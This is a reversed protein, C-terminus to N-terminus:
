CGVVGGQGGFGGRLRLFMGKAGAVGLVRQPVETSRTDAVSGTGNRAARVPMPCHRPPGKM